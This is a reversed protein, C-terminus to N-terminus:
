SKQIAKLNQVFNQVCSKGLQKINNRFEIVFIGFGQYIWGKKSSCGQRGIAPWGANAVGRCPLQILSKRYFNSLRYTLVIKLISVPFHYTKTARMVGSLYDRSEDMILDVKCQFIRCDNDRM